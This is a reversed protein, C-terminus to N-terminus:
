FFILSYVNKYLTGLSMNKCNKLALIYITIQHVLLFMCTQLLAGHHVHHCVIKTYEERCVEERMYSFQTSYTIHCVLLVSHICSLLSTHSVTEVSDNDSVCQLGTNPAYQVTSHLRGVSQGDSHFCISGKQDIQLKRYQSFM